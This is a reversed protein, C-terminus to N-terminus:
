KGPKRGITLGALNIVGTSPAPGYSTTTKAALMKQVLYLAAAGAVVILV